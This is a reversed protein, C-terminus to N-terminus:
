ATENRNARQALARRIKILGFGILILPWFKAIYPWFNLEPVFNRLLFATGLVLLVIGFILSDSTRKSM